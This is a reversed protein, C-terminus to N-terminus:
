GHSLVTGQLWAGVMPRGDGSLGHTPLLAAVGCIVSQIVHHWWGVPFLLFPSPPPPLPCPPCTCQQGFPFPASTQMSSHWIFTSSTPLSAPQLPLYWLSASLAYLLYPMVHGAEADWPGVGSIVMAEMAVLWWGEGSIVRLWLAPDAQWMSFVGGEEGAQYTMAALAYAVDEVPGWEVGAVDHRSCPARGVRGWGRAWGM